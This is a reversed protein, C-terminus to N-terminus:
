GEAFMLLSMIGTRETPLYPSLDTIGERSTVFVEFGEM